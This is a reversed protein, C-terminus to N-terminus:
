KGCCKKYKKGSGCFCPENRGVNKPRLYGAKIMEDINDLIDGDEECMVSFNGDGINKELIRIIREKDDHPGRIYFPRGENGFQIDRRPEINQEPELLYRSLKFDKQPSFGLKKAYHISGYIISHALNLDCEQAPKDFYVQAKLESEYRLQHIDVDYLTDKLGLCYLDVLYVGFALNNNSMKRSVTVRAHGMRKWGPNILCEHIPYNRSGYLIKFYKNNFM